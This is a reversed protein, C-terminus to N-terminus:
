QTLGKEIHSVLIPDTFMERWSVDALTASDQALSDTRFYESNVVEPRTYKKAVFCSQLTVLLVPIVAFRVLVNKRMKLKEYYGNFTLAKM